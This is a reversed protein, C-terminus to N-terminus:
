EVSYGGEIVEGSVCAQETLEESTLRRYLGAPTIGTM